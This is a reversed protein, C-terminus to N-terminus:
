GCPFTGCDGAFAGFSGTFSGCGGTFGAIAIFADIIWACKCGGIDSLRLCLMVESDDSFHSEESSSPAAGAFFRAKKEKESLCSSSSSNDGIDGVDGPVRASLSASPRLFTFCNSLATEMASTTLTTLGTKFPGMQSLHPSHRVFGFASPSGLGVAEVASGLGADSDAAAAAEDAELEDSLEGFM